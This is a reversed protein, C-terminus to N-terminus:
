LVDAFGRKSKMFFAYGAHMAALGVLASAALGTWDPMTGFLVVRRVGEVVPTLPNIRAMWRLQEPLHSVGYLVPTLYFLVQGVVIGAINGVDRVFVALAALMWACGLALAVLPLLLLPVLVITWTPPGMFIASGLAVMAFGIAAHLITAGLSAVPLIEVPFVVKKVYNPHDLVLGCSRTVSESFLTYAVIGAFLIIAFELPGSLDRGDWARMKFVHTFVVTFVVLQTIPFVVAWLTGLHTGRFRAVFMRWAFQRILDRHPWLGRWMAAPALLSAMSAASGTRVVPASGSGAPAAGSGAPGLSTSTM